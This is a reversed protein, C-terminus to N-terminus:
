RSENEQEPARSVIEFLNASCKQVGWKSPNDLCVFSPYLYGGSDNMAIVIAYWGGGHGLDGKRRVLDGVKM